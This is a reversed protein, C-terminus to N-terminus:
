PACVLYLGRRRECWISLCEKWVVMDDIVSASLFAFYLAVSSAGPDRKQSSDDDTEKEAKEPSEERRDPIRPISQM